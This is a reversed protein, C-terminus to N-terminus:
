TMKMNNAVIVTTVDFQYLFLYRTCQMSRKHLLLNKYAHM